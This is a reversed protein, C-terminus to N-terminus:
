FIKALSEVYPSIWIGLLGATSHPLPFEHAVAISLYVGCENVIIAIIYIYLSKLFPFCNYIINGILPKEEAVKNWFSDLLEWITDDHKKLSCM